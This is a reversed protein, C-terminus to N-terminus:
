FDAGWFGWAFGWPYRFLLSPTLELAFCRCKSKYSNSEHPKTTNILKQLQKKKKCEGCFTTQSIDLNPQRYSKLVLVDWSDFEYLDCSHTLFECM